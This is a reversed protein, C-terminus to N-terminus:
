STQGNATSFDRLSAALAVSVRARLHTGESNHEEQQVRGDAHVRAVLDGRGYPILVDVATDTPVALEAMRSQLRDIGEGTHASVFVAGPLAHRLKALALDGAADVKNVVLLEPPPEANHDAKYDAFVESVVQRVANIQALPNADSGDVVHVLLDADVVEELTSRFAEVLQTPLHRVFGVTDTLVFPRGDEFEARRTTPELTAFLADQVLVGAGTLANLLSSKGANTYGVIAISPLDSELRRSRQTDRVQKMDKIDRRLKSMRERIRRRDTEIKTEGPGRTGVGGGSGGAGGGQRSMSEGWGRLRPLMYEMQALSVQAKGERSTAHQAFIDLILATRDIVKVKVVKELANLQAPSLEGDFIVTDAGTARVVDRLEAAKGSGIYTSPDPRDRRQILGELVESGATEALAALEAMSSQNDAASGETWVGVLVVRELRLQRYEVESVDTLETSLGAVRRLAERDELALEGVSPAPDLHGTNPSDPFTM